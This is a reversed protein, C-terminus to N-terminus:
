CFAELYYCYFDEARIDTANLHRSRRKSMGMQMLALFLNICLLRPNECYFSKKRQYHM